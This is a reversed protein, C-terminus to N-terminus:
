CKLGWGVRNRCGTEILRVKKSLCGVYTLKFYRVMKMALLFFIGVERRRIFYGDASRVHETAVNEQEGSLSQAIGSCLWGIKLSSEKNISWMVLM